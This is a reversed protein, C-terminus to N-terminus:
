ESEMPTASVRDLDAYMDQMAKLEHRWFDRNDSDCELEILRALASQWSNRHTRLNDPEIVEHNSM